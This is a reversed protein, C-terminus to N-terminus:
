PAPPPRRTPHLRRAPHCSRPPPAPTPALLGPWLLPRACPWALMGPQTGARVAARRWRVVGSERALSFPQWRHHSADVWPGGSAAAMLHAPVPLLSWGLRAGPQLLQPHHHPHRLAHRAAHHAPAARQRWLLVAGLGRPLQLSSLFLPRTPPPPPPVRSAGSSGLERAERCRCSSCVRPIGAPLQPLSICVALPPARRTRACRPVRSGGPAWRGAAQLPLRARRRVEAAGPVRGRAGQAPRGLLRRGRRDLHHHPGVAPAPLLAPARATHWPWHRPPTTYVSAAGAPQRRRGLRRWPVCGCGRRVRFLAGLITASYDSGNRKLTTVQGATNKAIFGAPPHPPPRATLPARRAAPPAHPSRRGPERWRAGVAAFVHRACCLLLGSVPPWSSTPPHRAAWGSRAVSLVPVDRSCHLM